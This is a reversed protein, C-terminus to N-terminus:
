LRTMQRKSITVKKMGSFLEETIEINSAYQGGIMSINDLTRGNGLDIRYMTNGETSCKNYQISSLSLM